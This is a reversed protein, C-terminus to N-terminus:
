KKPQANNRGTGSPNGQGNPNNNPWGAPNAGNNPPLPTPRAREGKGCGFKGSGSSGKAM